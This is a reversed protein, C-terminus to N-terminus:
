DAYFKFSISSYAGKDIDDMNDPYITDQLDGNLSYYKNGKILLDDKSLDKDWIEYYVLVSNINEELDITIGWLNTEYTTDYYQTSKYTKDGIKIVLFPDPYKDSLLSADYAYDNSAFTNWKIQLYGDGNDNWDESDKVGDGDADAITTEGRVESSWDSWGASTRVRVQYYYSTESHLESNKFSTSNGSHVVKLGDRRLEYREADAVDNWRLSIFDSGRDSIKLGSPPPIEETWVSKEYSWPGNNDPNVGRVDYTYETNSSLESDIFSRNPGTYVLNRDRRLEYEEAHSVANWSLSISSSTQGTTQLSPSDSVDPYNTSEEKNYSWPGNNDPNVGRVKYSYRTNGSLESDTHNRDTGIYITSGNRQLEYTEANTISDWSLSISSSSKDTTRLNARDEIIPYEVTVSISGTVEGTYDGTGMATVTFARDMIGASSSVSVRGDSKDISVGSVTPSISYEVDQGSPKNSWRPSESDNNGKYITISNYSLSGSVSHRSVELRIGSSSNNANNTEGSVTEVIAGYYYTGPSSPANITVTKDTSGGPALTGVNDTSVVSDSSTITSDTSRYYKIQTTGSSVGGSNQVTIYLTFSADPGVSSQSIRISSPLLDPPLLTTGRTNESWGSVGAANKARVAYSYGRGSDLGTDTFSTGNVTQGLEHGDRSIEYSDAGNVADWILSISNATSGEIRFGDPISPLGLATRVPVDTTWPSVGASNKARVAYIYDTNSDLVADTFSAGSISQNLVSGNRRLEYSDAGNVANWELSIANTAVNVVKLGTPTDLTPLVTRGFVQSSWSSAGASNIARIDYAYQTDSSLGTDSFNTASGNYVATGDRRLEYEAGLVSNWKLNITDAGEDIITLGTPTRPPTISTRGYVETSRASSGASNKALVDYTYRTDTTLNTDTFSAASGRYVVVGDRRLEYEVAGSVPNWALSIEKDTTGTVNLGEPIGPAQVVTRSRVAVSWDSWGAANGASVQYNYENGSALGAADTYGTDGGTYVVVGDRRLSYETAYNVSYWSLRISGATVTSVRLGAPTNPVQLEKKPTAQQTTKESYGNDLYKAFIAYYYLTDNVLGTDTYSEGSGEYVPKGDAADEPFGSDGRRIVVKSFHTSLPNVWSLRVEGDSGSALFGHPADRQLDRVSVTVGGSVIEMGDSVQAVIDVDGSTLPATWKVTYNTTTNFKGASASWTYILTDGNADTAHVVLDVVEGANVERPNAEVSVIVPASPDKGLLDQCGVFVALLLVAAAVSFFVRGTTMDDNGKRKPREGQRM